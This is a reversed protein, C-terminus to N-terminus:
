IKNKNRYKDLSIIKNKRLEDDTINRIEKQHKTADEINLIDWRDYKVMADPSYLAIIDDHHIFCNELRNNGFSIAVIINGEETWQMRRHNNHTFVLILGKEKEEATFGRNGITTLESYKVIIYVKGYDNLLDYFLNKLYKLQNKVTM